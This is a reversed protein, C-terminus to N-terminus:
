KVESEAEIALEDRAEALKAEFLAVVAKAIRESDTVEAGVAKLYVGAAKADGQIAAAHMAELVRSM